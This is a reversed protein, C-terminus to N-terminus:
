ADGSRARKSPSGSSVGGGSTLSADDVAARKSGSADADGTDDDPFIYRLIDTLSIVKKLRGEGDVVFIRHVRSATRHRRATCMDIDAQLM